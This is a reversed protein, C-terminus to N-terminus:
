IPHDNPHSGLVGPKTDCCPTVRDLDRGAWLAYAGLLPRRKATRWWCRHRRWIFSNSELLVCFLIHGTLWDFYVDYIIHKTTKTTPPPNNGGPPITSEITNFQNNGTLLTRKHKFFYIEKGANAFFTFLVAMEVSTFRLYEICRVDFFKFHNTKFIFQGEVRM